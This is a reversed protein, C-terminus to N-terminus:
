FHFFVLFPQKKHGFVRWLIRANNVLLGNHTPIACCTCTYFLCNAGMRLSFIWFNGSMLDSFFNIKEYIEAVKVGFETVIEQTPFSADYDINTEYDGDEAKSHFTRYCDLCYHSSFGREWLHSRKRRLWGQGWILPHIINACGGGGGRVCTRYKSM